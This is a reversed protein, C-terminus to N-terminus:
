FCNSLISAKAPPRLTTRSPPLAKFPLFTGGFYRPREPSVQAPRPALGRQSTAAILPPLFSSSKRISLDARFPRFFRLPFRQGEYLDCSNWLQAFKTFFGLHPEKVRPCIKHFQPTASISYVTVFALRATAIRSASAIGALACLPACLLAFSISDPHLPRIPSLVGGKLSAKLCPRQAPYRGPRAYALDTKKHTGSPAVGSCPTRTTM